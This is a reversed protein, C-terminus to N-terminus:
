NWWIHHVRLSPITDIAEPLSSLRQGLFVLTSVSQSIFPYDHDLQLHDTFYNTPNDSLWVM